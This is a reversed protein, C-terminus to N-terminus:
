KGEQHDVRLLSLNLDLGGSACFGIIEPQTESSSREEMQVQFTEGRKQRWVAIGNAVDCVGAHGKDNAGQI